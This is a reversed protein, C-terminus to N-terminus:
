FKLTVEHGTKSPATGVRSGDPGLLNFSITESAETASYLRVAISDVGFTISLSAISHAAM